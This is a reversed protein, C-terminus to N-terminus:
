GFLFESQQRIEVQNPSLLVNEDAYQAFLTILGRGGDLLPKLEEGASCNM